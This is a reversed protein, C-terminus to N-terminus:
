LELMDFLHSDQVLVGDGYVKLVSVLEEQRDQSAHEHNRLPRYLFETLVKRQIRDPGARKDEVLVHWSFFHHQHPILVVVSGTQCIM